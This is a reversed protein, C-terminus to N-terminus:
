RYNMLKSFSLNSGIAQSKKVKNVSTISTTNVSVGNKLIDVTYSATTHTDSGTLLIYDITVNQQMSYKDFSVDM